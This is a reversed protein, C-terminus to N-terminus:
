LIFSFLTTPTNLVCPYLPFQMFIETKFVSPYKMGPAYSYVSLTILCFSNSQNTKPVPLPLSYELDHFVEHDTLAGGAVLWLGFHLNSHRLINRM